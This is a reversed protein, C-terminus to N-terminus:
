FCKESFKLHFRLYKCISIPKLGSGSGKEGLNSEREREIKVCVCVCVRKRERQGNARGGQAAWLRECM